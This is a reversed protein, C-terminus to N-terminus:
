RCRQQQFLVLLQALPLKDKVGLLMAGEPNLDYIRGRIDITVYGVPVSEYLERYRDRSDELEQRSCQLEEFQLQLEVQHVHLEHVLAEVNEPALSPVTKTILRGLNAEARRRLRAMDDPATVAQTYTSSNM